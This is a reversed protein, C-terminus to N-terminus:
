TERTGINRNPHFQRHGLVALRMEDRIYVELCVEDSPNGAENLMTSKLLFPTMSMNLSSHM